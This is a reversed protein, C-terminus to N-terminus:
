HGAAKAPPAPLEHLRALLDQVRRSNLAAAFDAERQGAPPHALALELAAELTDREEPALAFPTRPEFEMRAIKRAFELLVACPDLCPILSKAEPADPALGPVTWLRRKLCFSAHCCSAIMRAAPADAMSSTYRYMGTQRATFERYHTVPPEPQRAALWDALAGPYLQELACGLEAPSAAVARWGHVLNPAAKLPRFAGAETHQALTRLEDTAVPRLSDAAAERDADHRLEFGSGSRRLRVQGFLLDDQFQELFAALAPHPIPTSM